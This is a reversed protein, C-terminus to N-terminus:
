LWQNSPVERFPKAPHGAYITRAGLDKTVLSGAAAVSEEEMVKGPLITANAGIRGGRKITVGKFHSFREECRALYNDNTTVVCPAIFVDDELTSYATIYANTEIKCRKGITCDNEIAVGRGIITEGHITVRERISALDAVFVADHLTAGRYIIASTGIVVDNGIITGPPRKQVPLASRKGRMPPKGIVAHDCIVTNDGIVSDRYIIVHHGISVNKGIVAGEEIVVHEGMTM